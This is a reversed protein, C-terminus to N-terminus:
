RPASSVRLLATVWTRYPRWREALAAEAVGRLRRVKEDTLGPFSELELLREPLPFAAMEEGAVNLVAGHERSLRERAALAQRPHLRASIISWGAAEYPSHFLVPRFGPHERQARGIVPDREGIAPYDSADHDLSLIRATQSRAADVEERGIVEGQVTEGEQRLLAGAHGRHGDLSFALRVASQSTQAIGEAPPWGALFRGSERLSFPGRAAISFESV